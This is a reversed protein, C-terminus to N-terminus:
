NIIEGHTQLEAGVSGSTTESDSERFTTRSRLIKCCKAVLFVFIVGLAAYAATVVFWVNEAVFTTAKTPADCVRDMSPTELQNAASLNVTAFNLEEIFPSGKPLVFAINFPFFTNGVRTMENCYKGTLHHAVGASHLFTFRAEGKDVMDFCAERVSCRKAKRKNKIVCEQSSVFKQWYSEMATGTQVVVDSVDRKCTIFDEIGLLEHAPRPPRTISVILLAEYLALMIISVGLITVFVFKSALSTANYSGHGLIGIMSHFATKAWLRDGIEMKAHNDRKSSIRADLWYLTWSFVVLGALSAWLWPGFPRSFFWMDLSGQPGGTKTVFNLHQTEVYPQLYSIVRLREPTIIFSAGGIDVSCNFSLGNESCEVLEDILSTFTGNYESVEYTFNLRQSLKFLYRLGLGSSVMGDEVIIFPPSHLVGVRFHKGAISTENSGLTKQKLTDSMSLGKVSVFNVVVLFVAIWCTRSQCTVGMGSARRLVHVPNKLESYGCAEHQSRWFWIRDGFVLQDRVSMVFLVHKASIRVVLWSICGISTPHCYLIRAYLVLHGQM